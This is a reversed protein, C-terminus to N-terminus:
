KKPQPNIIQALIDDVSETQPAPMHTNLLANAHLTKNITELANM